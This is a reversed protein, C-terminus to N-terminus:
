FVNNLPICTYKCLYLFPLSLIKYHLNEAFQPQLNLIIGALGRSHISFNIIPWSWVIQFLVIQHRGCGPLIEFIITFRYYYLCHLIVYLDVACFLTWFSVEICTHDVSKKCWSLETFFYNITKKWYIDSFCNLM